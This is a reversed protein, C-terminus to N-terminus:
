IGMNALTDLLRRAVGVAVPAQAEAKVVAAEFQDRVSELWGKDHQHHLAEALQATTGALHAVEAAPCQGSQLMTGLEDVLEALVRRSAPDLKRSQRLLQAVERLRSQIEPVAPTAPIPNDPM